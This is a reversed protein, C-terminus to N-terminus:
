IVRHTPGCAKVRHTKSRTAHLWKTFKEDRIPKKTPLATLEPSLHSTFPCARYLSELYHHLIEHIKKTNTLCKM